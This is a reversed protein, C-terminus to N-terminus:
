CPLYARNTRLTSYSGRHGRISRTRIQFRGLIKTRSKHIKSVFYTFEGVNQTKTEYLMPITWCVFEALKDMFDTMNYYLCIIIVPWQCLVCRVNDSKHDVCARRRAPGVRGFVAVITRRLTSLPKPVLPTHAVIATGWVPASHWITLSWIEGDVVETMRDRSTMPWTVMRSLM